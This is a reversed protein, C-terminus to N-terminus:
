HIANKRYEVLEKILIGIVLIYELGVVWLNEHYPQYSYNIYTLLILGSWVIAYRFSTLSTLAVLPAIYWPHVTTSCLQYLSLALLFLFPLRSIDKKKDFLALIIIGLASLGALGPGITAIENYGRFLYGIERCVYYIGGNFEFSKYYLRISERFNSLLTEDWLMFFSLIFVTAAILGYIVAKKLGLKWLFFPMFILPLLKTGIALGLSIASPIINNFKTLLYISGMLFFIMMGEFHLNGSIEIIVLPNLAYLLVQWKPLSFQQLIQYIFFLSGIEFLILFLRMIIISGQVQEPFLWTSFSFIAQLLPPYVSYYIQSNLDDYIFHHKKEETNSIFEEPKLEYPNIGELNLYGDWIFRFYDDSLPPYAPILICRLIIGMLIFLWIPNKEGQKIIFLYFSWMLGYGIM